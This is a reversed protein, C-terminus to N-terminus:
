SCPIVEIAGRIEVGDSLVIDNDSCVHQIFDLKTKNIILTSKAITKSSSFLVIKEVKYNNDKLKDIFDQVLFDESIDIEIVVKKSPIKTITSETPIIDLKNLEKKAHIIDLRALTLNIENLNNDISSLVSALQKNVKDADSCIRNIEERDM